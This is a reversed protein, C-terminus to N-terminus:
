AVEEEQETTQSVDFVAVLRFRQENPGDGDEAGASEESRGALPVWMYVAKEGPKVYRGLAQWQRYGGVITVDEKQTGLMVTNHASLPRQECTLVTGIKSALALRESESMAAITRSLDRLKTRREEYAAEQEPTMKKRRM